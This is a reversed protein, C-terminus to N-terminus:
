TATYRCAKVLKLSNSLGAHSERNIARSLSNTPDDAAHQACGSAPAGRAESALMEAVPVSGMCRAARGGREKVCIELEFNNKKRLIARKRRLVYHLVGRHAGFRCKELSFDVNKIFFRCKHTEKKM